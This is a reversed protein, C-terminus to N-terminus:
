TKQLLSRTYNKPVNLKLNIQNHSISIENRKIKYYMSSQAKQFRSAFLTRLNAKQKFFSTFHIKKQLPAYNM